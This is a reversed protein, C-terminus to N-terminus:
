SLSEPAGPFYYGGAVRSCAHVIELDCFRGVPRGHRTPWRRTDGAGPYGPAAHCRSCCLRVAAKKPSGSRPIDASSRRRRLSRGMSYSAAVCQRRARPCRSGCRSDCGVAFATSSVFQWRLQQLIETFNLGEDSLKRALTRESMGLSRAVCEEM